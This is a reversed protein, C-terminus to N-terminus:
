AGGRPHEPLPPRTRYKSYTGGFAAEAQLALEGEQGEEEDYAEGGSGEEGESM